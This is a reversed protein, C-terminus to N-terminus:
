FFLRNPGHRDQQQNVNEGAPPRCVACNVRIPHNDALPVGNGDSFENNRKEPIPGSERPVLCATRECIIGASTHFRASASRFFGRPRQRPVSAFTCRGKQGHASCRTFERDVPRPNHPPPKASGSCQFVVPHLSWCSRLGFRFARSEDHRESQFPHNFDINSGM